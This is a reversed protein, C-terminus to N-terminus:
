KIFLSPIHYNLKIKTDIGSLIIPASRNKEKPTMITLMVRNLFKKLTPTASPELHIGLLIFPGKGYGFAPATFTNIAADDVWNIEKGVKFGAFEQVDVKTEKPEGREKIM